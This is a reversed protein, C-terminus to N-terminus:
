EVNLQIGVDIWEGRLSSAAVTFSGGLKTFVSLFKACHDKLQSCEKMFEMASKFEDIINNFTPSRHVATTILHAEFMLDALANLNNRCLNSLAAHHSALVKHIGQILYPINFNDTFFLM